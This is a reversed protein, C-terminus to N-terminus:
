EAPLGKEIGLEKEIIESKQVVIIGIASVLSFEIGYSAIIDPLYKQILEEWMPALEKKEQDTLLYEKKGSVTAMISFPIMASILKLLNEHLIHDPIKAQAPETDPTEDEPIEDVAKRLDDFEPDVGKITKSGPLSDRKVSNPIKNQNQNKNQNEKSQNKQSKPKQM